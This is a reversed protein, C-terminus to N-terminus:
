AVVGIMYPKTSTIETSDEDIYTYSLDGRVDEYIAQKGTDFVYEGAICEGIRECSLLMDFANIDKQTVLRVLCLSRIGDDNYHVPIKVVNYIINGDDDFNFGHIKSLAKAKAEVRFLTLDPIYTIIDKM